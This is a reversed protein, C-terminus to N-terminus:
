KLRRLGTEYKKEGLEILSAKENGWISQLIDREHSLINNKVTWRKMHKGDTSSM